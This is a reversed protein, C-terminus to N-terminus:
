MSRCVRLGPPRARLFLSPRWQSTGREKERERAGRSWWEIEIVGWVCMPIADGGEAGDGCGWGWGRSGSGGSSGSRDGRGLAAAAPPLGVITAVIAPTPALLPLLLLPSCFHPSPLDRVGHGM